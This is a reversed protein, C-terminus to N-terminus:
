GGAQRRLPVAYYACFARGNCTPNMTPVLLVADPLHPAATDLQCVPGWAGDADSVCRSYRAQSELLPRLVALAPGESGTYLSPDARVADRTHTLNNNPVKADGPAVDDARQRLVPKAAADAPSVTYECKRPSECTLAVRMQDFAGAFSGHHWPVEAQARALGPLVCAAVLLMPLSMLRAM